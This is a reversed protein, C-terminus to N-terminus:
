GLYLSALLGALSLLRGRLAILRASDWDAADTTRLETDIELLARALPSLRATGPLPPLAAELQRMAAIQFLVSRPNDPDLLILDLVTERRPDIRYRRRHTMMSDGLETMLEASGQPAEADCLQALLMTTHESRELARGFSLFRWGTFRYMNEHVLGSFGTVRRLLQGLERSAGDGARSKGSILNALYSLERLETWADVSFRDRVQGACYRASDLQGTLQQPVRQAPDLSMLELLGNLAELRPAEPDGTEDLRLHWARLMRITGEAREVYRGLWFLNDAARSPLISPRGRLGPGYDEIMTDQPVEKDSVIWVDAVSGGRQMALASADDSRGIRAYGGPMIQWGAPTRAAFVRVTMPRPELKGDHWVPTTSLTVAEQGVLTEGMADIQAALDTGPPLMPDPEFPLSTSLARGMMMQDINAEVHAREKPQGCWWTAINPLALPEGLLAHSIRPLFAMLARSELVGAGLANVMSLTGQRLASVLGPTGIRSTEDLELPDAFNADLRRWLVSIPKLGSVTRVMVQGDRVTLDEGELLMLGLYRAIFTHEFYTDNGPGPTLIAPRAADGSFGAPTIQGLGDMADRFARFFTAVRHINSKRFQEPFMRTSAVRNELAFGAGSPAQARDGLVFWSGDPSRGIEFALFHLYRGSIPPVGVMPRLWEPNQAILEPPLYGGSILSQTGYLDAVIRELLEARQVLGASIGAWEDEHLLVPVHSLPWAREGMDKDSYQRYFVGADRLYQDARAFRAELAEVDLTDFQRLLWRWAPRMNGEADVLEDAVGPRPSYRALLAKEPAESPKAPKGNGAPQGQSQGQSM